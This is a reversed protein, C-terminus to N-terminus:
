RPSPGRPRATSGHWPQGFGGRTLGRGSYDPGPEGQRRLRVGEDYRGRRPTDDDYRPRMGYRVNPSNANLHRLYEPDRPDRMGGGGRYGWDYGARGGRAYDRDYGRPAHSGRFGGYPELERQHQARYRGYEAQGPEGQLRQGRYDGGRHNPDMGRGGRMDAPIGEYDRQYRAM